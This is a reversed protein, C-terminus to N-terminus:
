RSGGSVAAGKKPRDALAEIAGYSHGRRCGFKEDAAKSIRKSRTARQVRFVLRAISHDTHPTDIDSFRALSALVTENLSRSTLEWTKAM